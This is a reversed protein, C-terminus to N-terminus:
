DGAEPKSYKRGDGRGQFRGIIFDAAAILFSFGLASVFIGTSEQSSFPIGGHRRFPWPAYDADPYHQGYRYIDYTEIALFISLPLSGLMIIEGRRLEKLVPSFEDEQYEEPETDQCFILTGTLLILLLSIVPIRAPSLSM